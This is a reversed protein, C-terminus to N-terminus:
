ALGLAAGGNTRKLRLLVQQVQKGVAVPDLAGNIVVSVDGGGAAAMSVSRTHPYVRSGRPLDVLEPGQEGVWSLGGRWNSTGRANRGREPDRLGSYSYTTHVSVEKHDPIKKINDAFSQAKNAANQMADAATKAWGFGPVHSLGRLMNAWMQLIKAVGAVIFHFAPQLANNWLWVGARGVAQFGAKIGEFAPKLANEWLWKGAAGIAHLAGQVIARFTASRKYAIVLGAVLAAIAIVVLGIQNANMAANLAWQVAAAVKTIATWLKTAATWAKTAASTAWLVAVLGALTGALAEALGTNKSVWDTVKLGADTLKGLVPLLGAGIKEQLEGYQTALIKQKGAATEANKAAAGGYTDALQKTIQQLSLTKGQADKTAVGLRSLGSVNGNQAKALAETVSSLSKGRGVSVDMALSALKQAKGIDHTSAVLRSLAPRLEDDTVGLSKGQATIWRETAAVQADTAHAATHFTQAMKSASQQDEAAAKTWKVAAVAAAGLGVALVTKAVAGMKHMRSESKEAANGVGDLAKSATRDEGLLLLRLTADAASM